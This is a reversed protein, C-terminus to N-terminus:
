MIYRVRKLACCLVANLWTASVEMKKQVHPNFLPYLLAVAVLFIRPGRM